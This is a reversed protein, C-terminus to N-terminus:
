HTCVYLIICGADERVHSTKSGVIAEYEVIKEVILCLLLILVTPHLIADFQM